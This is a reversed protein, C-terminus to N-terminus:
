LIHFIISRFEIMIRDPYIGSVTFNVAYPDYHECFIVEFLLIFLLYHSPTIHFSAIESYNTGANEQLYQSFGRLVEIMVAPEPNFDSCKVSKNRLLFVAWKVAINQTNVTTISVGEQDSEFSTASDCIYVLSSLLRKM